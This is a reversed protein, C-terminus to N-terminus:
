RVRKLCRTRRVAADGRVRTVARSREGAGRCAAGPRAPDGPEIPFEMLVSTGTSPWRTGYEFREALAMVQPLDLVVDADAGSRRAGGDDRVSLCEADVAAEVVVPSPSSADDDGAYAVAEAVAIGVALGMGAAMGHHGAFHTVELPAASSAAALGEYSWRTITVGTEEYAM